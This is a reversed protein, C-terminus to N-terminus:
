ACRWKMFIRGRTCASWATSHSLKDVLWTTNQQSRMAVQQLGDFGLLSMYITAATVMLGQNTCINSTAKSRRIHQERAQLTLAFGPKDDLDTTKGVIRGPMQRVYKQKCTMFASIRGVRHCHCASHSAKAAPLTRGKRAGTGPAKLVALSIPNVVAIVLAGKEHAWDTLRDVDELTGPFSPQQIVVAVPSDGADLEVAANGTVADM